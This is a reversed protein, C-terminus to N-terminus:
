VTDAVKWTATAPTNQWGVVRGDRFEGPQSAQRCARLGSAHAVLKANVTEHSAPTNRGNDGGRNREPPSHADTVVLSNLILAFFILTAMTPRPKPASNM